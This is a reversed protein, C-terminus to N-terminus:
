VARRWGSLHGNFPAPSSSPALYPLRVTVSVSVWTVEEGEGVGVSLHAWDKGRESRRLEVDSGLRGQLACHIGKM